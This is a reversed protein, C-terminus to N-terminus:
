NINQVNTLTMGANQRITSQFFDSPGKFGYKVIIKELEPILISPLTVNVAVVGNHGFKRSSNRKMRLSYAHNTKSAVFFCGTRTFFTRSEHALIACSERM